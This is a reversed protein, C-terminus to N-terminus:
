DLLQSANEVTARNFTCTLNTRLYDLDFQTDFFFQDNFEQLGLSYWLLTHLETLNLWPSTPEILIPTGLRSSSMSRNAPQSAVNKFKQKVNNSHLIDKEISAKIAERTMDLLRVVTEIRVWMDPERVDCLHLIALLHITTVPNPVTYEIIKLIDVFISSLRLSELIEDDNVYEKLGILSFVDDSSEILRFEFKQELYGLCHEVFRSFMELMLHNKKDIDFLKASPVINKILPRCAGSIPLHQFHSSNQNDTLPKAEDLYRLFDKKLDLKRYKKQYNFLFNKPIYVEPTTNYHEVDEGVVLINHVTSNIITPKNIMIESSSESKVISSEPQHTKM